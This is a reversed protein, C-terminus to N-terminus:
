IRSCVRWAVNSAFTSICLVMNCGQKRTWTKTASPSCYHGRLLSWCQGVDSWLMSQCLLNFFPFFQQTVTAPLSFHSLFLGAAALTLALSPLLHELGWLLYERCNLLPGHLLLSDRQLGHTGHPASRWTCSLLLWCPSTSCAQLLYLGHVAGEAAAGPLAAARTSCSPQPLLWRRHQLLASRVLLGWPVSGHQLLAWLATAQPFGTRSWNLSSLMWHSRSWM